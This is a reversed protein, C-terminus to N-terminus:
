FFLAYLLFGTALLVAAFFAARFRMALLCALAYLAAFWEPTTLPTATVPLTFLATLMGDMVGGFGALHLGMSVPYFLVFVLSLPISLLQYPTFPEFILHVVPLMLLFLLLHLVLVMKWVGVKVHRVVLFIFFVGAASLWFGISLLLSPMIAVLLLLTVFLLGFNLVHLHRWLMFLGVALMGYARVLSPPTDTFILYGFLLAASLMGLDFLRNRYPFYRAQVFRYLPSLLGVIIAGLLGLHFGSLAILHAIGLHTVGTRLEQNLPRAFYLAAYLERMLPEPHQVAVGDRVRDGWRTEEPHLTLDFAPAYFRDLYDMFAIEKTLLSLSLTRGSLNKLAERSTTYFTAQPSQLLLVTYRGKAGTKEYQKIVTADLRQVPQALFTRYDHYRAFLHLLLLTLLLAVVGSWARWGSVFPLRPALM